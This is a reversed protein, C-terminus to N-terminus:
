FWWEPHRAGRDDSTLGIVADFDVAQSAVLRASRPGEGNDVLYRSESLGSFEPGANEM